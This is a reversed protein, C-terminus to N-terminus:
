RAPARRDFDTEKVLRGSRDFTRWVGVQRGADFAGTRMVSGDTRYFRWEGHMEGELLFGTSKVEGSAYTDTTPTPASSDSTWPDWFNTSILPSSGRVGAIRVCHEELQAVDGPSARSRRPDGRGPLIGRAM